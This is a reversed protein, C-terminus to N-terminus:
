ASLLKSIISGFCLFSLLFGDGRITSFVRGWVLLYDHDDIGCPFFFSDLRPRIWGEVSLQENAVAVGLWGFTYSSGVNRM